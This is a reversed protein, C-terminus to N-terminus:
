SFNFSFFKKVLMKVKVNRGEVKKRYIAIDVSQCYDCTMVDVTQYDNKSSWLMDNLNKIAKSSM